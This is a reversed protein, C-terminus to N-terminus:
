QMASRLNIEVSRADYANPSDPKEGTGTVIELVETVTGGTSGGLPLGIGVGVGVSSSRGYSGTGGGISVSSRSRPEQAVDTYGSVVEFWDGGELLTLEAARLLAYDRARRPDSDTYAIQFRNTEIQQTMYGDAGVKAAPGYPTTTTCAALLLAASLGILIRM